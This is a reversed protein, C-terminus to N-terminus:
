RKKILQEGLTGNKDFTFNYSVAGGYGLRKLKTGDIQIMKFHSTNLNKLLLAPITDTTLLFYDNYENKNRHKNIWSITYETCSGCYTPDVVIVSTEKLPIQLTSFYDKLKREMKNESCSILIFITLLISATKITFKM